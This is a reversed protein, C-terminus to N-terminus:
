AVGVGCVGHWQRHQLSHKCQALLLHAPCLSPPTPCPTWQSCNLGMYLHHPLSHLSLSERRWQEEEEEEEEREEGEEM